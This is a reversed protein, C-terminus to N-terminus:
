FKCVVDTRSDKVSLSPGDQLSHFRIEPIDMM